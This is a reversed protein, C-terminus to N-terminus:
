TEDKLPDQAIVQLRSRRQLWMVGLMDVIGVKLRDLTGYHSQGQTRSRHSVAVSVVKGGARQVLAPLFRHMHDFYPLAMFVDRPFAKLGCGTDPTDDKLM